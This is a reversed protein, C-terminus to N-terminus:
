KTKSTNLELGYERNMKKRIPEPPGTTHRSVSGYWWNLSSKYKLRMQDSDQTTKWGELPM